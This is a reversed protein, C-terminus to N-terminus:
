CSRLDNEVASFATEMPFPSDERLPGLRLGQPFWLCWGVHPHLGPLDRGPASSLTVESALSTPGPSYPSHSPPKSCATLAASISLAASCSTNMGEQRRTPAMGSLPDHDLQIVPSRAGLISCALLRNKGTHERQTVKTCPTTILSFHLSLILLVFVRQMLM